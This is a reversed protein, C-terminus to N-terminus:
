IRGGIFKREEDISIKEDYNKIIVQKALLSITPFEFLDAMRISTKMANNIVSLIEQALLSDGGLIFFNDHIGIGNGLYHSWIILLDSQLKNIPATSLTPRLVLDTDCVPLSKRCYKGHKNIPISDMLMYFNPIAIIKPDRLLYERLSELDLVANKEKVLYAVIVDRDLVKQKVVVAEQVSFFNCLVKEIPIPNVLLGNINFHISSRGIFEIDNNQNIQCVDYTCLLRSQRNNADNLASNDENNLVKINNKEIREGGIYLCGKEGNKVSEGKQNLVYLAVDGLAKGLPTIKSNLKYSQTSVIGCAETLGYMCVIDKVQPLLMLVRDLVNNDPIDSTTFIRRLPISVKPSMKFIKQEMSYVLSRLQSPVLDIVSVAYSIILDVLFDSNERQSDSALVVTAGCYLPLLLQRNASSFTFPAVHLYIDSSNIVLRQKLSKIYSILAHISAEVLKEEGSTGSTSMICGTRSFSSIKDYHILLQQDTRPAPVAVVIM